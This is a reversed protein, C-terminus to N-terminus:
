SVVLAEVAIVVGALGPGGVGGPNNSGCIGGNVRSTTSTASPSDRATFSSIM